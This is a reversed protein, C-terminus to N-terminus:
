FFMDRKVGLNKDQKPVCNKRCPDNLYANAIVCACIYLDNLFVILFAMRASERTVVSSPTISLPPATKHRGAVLRCKRTFKGNIKIDFIM